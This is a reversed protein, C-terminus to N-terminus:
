IIKLNNKELLTLLDDTSNYLGNDSNSIIAETLCAFTNGSGVVLDFDDYSFSPAKIMIGRILKIDPRLKEIEFVFPSVPEVISFFISNQKINSVINKGADESIFATLVCLDCKGISSFNIHEFIKVSGIKKCEEALNKVNGLTKAFLNIEEINEKALYKSLKAGSKTTAGIIGISHISDNNKNILEIIKEKASIALLDTGDFVEVNFKKELNGGDVVTSLMGGVSIKEAGMKIALRFAQKTRINAIFKNRQFYVPLLPVVIIHGKLINNERFESVKFVPLFLLIYYKIFVPIKKLFTLKKELEGFSRPHVIWAIKQPDINFFLNVFATPLIRILTSRAVKNIGNM